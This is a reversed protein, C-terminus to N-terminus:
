YPYFLAKQNVAALLKVEYSTQTMLSAGRACDLAWKFNNEVNEDVDRIYYWTSARDPVMNPAEEGELTVWHMRQTIPLHERMRETGAHMLEVADVASRGM